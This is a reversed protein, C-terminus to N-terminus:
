STFLKDTLEERYVDILGPDEPMQLKEKLIKRYNDDKDELTTKLQVQRQFLQFEESSLSGDCNADLLDMLEKADRGGAGLDEMLDILEEVSIRGDRDNDLQRFARNKPDGGGQDSGAAAPQDRLHLAAMDAAALMIDKLRKAEEPDTLGGKYLSHSAEGGEAFRHMEETRIQIEMLPRMKKAGPETVDIAVHLSRYGNKKPRAIYDKTRGAVEKWMAQIVEHTRRCAREQSSASGVDLIVRLGLIDNVDEPRRGDKVLKKMTSFRSKYRGQVSVSRATRSLEGDANLAQLLRERYADILLLCEAEQGSLWQDVQDYAQPFLFRFSLDELELSVRGAGVAHALPAYIKMVELAKVRQQHRPLYEHLHRMMDLKVALELIVARIDYSSLVLKRLASAREEDLLDVETPAHELRLSERLLQATGAGIQAEVNGISVAGADMAERLMGGSIVEADMQLDALSAAVALAQAQARQGLAPLALKLARFLMRSSSSTALGDGMRESLENFVALLEAVLEGGSAAGAAAASPGDIGGSVSKEMVEAASAM